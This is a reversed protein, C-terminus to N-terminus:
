LIVEAAIDSRFRLGCVQTRRALEYARARADGVSSAFGVANLVRGGTSVIQAGSQRAGAVFLLQGAGCEPLALAIDKEYSDPYGEACLVVCVSSQAARSSIRKPDLSGSACQHMVDAVDYTICPLIVQTEPDGFRCNFEIVQPGKDTLMLGCYLLGRFESDSAALESLVPRVIRETTFEVVADGAHAAPCLTGMGGTNPGIDGDYARKYDQAPPLPACREGDCWYHLSAERGSLKEELVVRTGAGGLSREVLLSHAVALVEQDDGCVFAGKGAALGDAKVVRGSARPNSKVFDRLLAFDDFVHFEATPVDCDRMLQKAFVKSSEIRAASQTPGFCAIGREALRDALGEALPQEPGVVVLDPKCSSIADVMGSVGNVAPLLKALKAIGPNGPLALLESCSPSQALKWALAHERGGSGILLIKM